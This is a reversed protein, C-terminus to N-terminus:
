NKSSEEDIFVPDIATEVPKEPRFWGSIDKYSVFIILSFLAIMFVGQSAAVFQAPLARGRIKAITAFVIHGGDLVPIPLINFFALSINIYITFWIAIRIDSKITDFLAKAIGPPGSM